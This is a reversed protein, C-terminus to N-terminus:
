RYIRLMTRDVAFTQRANALHPMNVFAVYAVTVTLNRNCALKVQCNVRKSLQESNTTEATIPSKTNASKEAEALELALEHIEKHYLQALPRGSSYGHM